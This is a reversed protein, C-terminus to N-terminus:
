RKDVAATVLMAPPPAARLPLLCDERLRPSRLYACRWVADAHTAVAKHRLAAQQVGARVVQHFAVLLAVIALTCLLPRLIPLARTFNIFM